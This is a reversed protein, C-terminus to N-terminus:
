GQLNWPVALKAKDKLNNSKTHVHCKPQFNHQCSQLTIKWFTNFHFRIDDIDNLLKEAQHCM